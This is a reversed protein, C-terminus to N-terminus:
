GKVTSPSIGHYDRTVPQFIPLAAFLTLTQDVFSILQDLTELVPRGQGPGEKSFAVFSAFKSKVEVNPTDAGLKLRMLETGDAIPVVAMQPSGVSLYDIHVDEGPGGITTEANIVTGGVIVLLKHKDWIDLQHLMWLPHLRWNPNGRSDPQLSEMLAMAAEGFTRIQAKRLTEQERVASATTPRAAGKDWVLFQTSRKEAQGNLRELQWATYDLAARLNHVIDGVVLSWEPPIQRSVRARWIREGTKLNDETVVGYPNLGVFDSAKAILDRFQEKARQVKARSGSLDVPSQVVTSGEM